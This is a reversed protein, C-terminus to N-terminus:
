EPGQNWPPEPLFRGVLEDIVVRVKPAIHRARPWVAHIPYGRTPVQPLVQLLRGDRLHDAVLWQSLLAVGYGALVAELIAEADNLSLRGSVPRAVAEGAEDVFWWPLAQGGRTLVICSHADLDALTTPRGRREIYAPSACAVSHQVGLQRSVLLDGGEPEGIHLMLDVAEELLDINRDTFSVDMSLLPYREAVDMLVPLVWRRGFVVPLAVHLCGRPQLNNATLAAEAGELEALVRSCTDYFAQGDDTLAFSRTTRHFLRVGLREELRTVSKAIASKSLGLQRAAEAFGGADAAHVFVTIGKLHDETTM